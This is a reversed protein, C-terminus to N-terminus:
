AGGSPKLQPEKAESVAQPREDQGTRSPMQASLSTAVTLAGLGFAATTLQMSQKGQSVLQFPKRPPRALVLARDPRFGTQVQRESITRSNRARARVRAPHHEGVRHVLYALPPRPM